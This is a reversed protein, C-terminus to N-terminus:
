LSMRSQLVWWFVVFCTSDWSIIGSFILFCSLIPIPLTYNMTPSHLPLPWCRRAAPKPAPRRGLRPSPRGHPPRDDGHRRAPRWGAVELQQLLGHQRELVRALAGAQRLDSPLQQPPERVPEVLRAVLQDGFREHAQRLTALDDGLLTVVVAEVGGLHGLTLGGFQAGFGGSGRISGASRRVRARGAGAGGGPGRGRVGAGGGIGGEGGVGGASRRRRRRGRGGAGSFRGGLICLARGLIRRGTHGAVALAGIQAALIQRAGSRRRRGGGGRAASGGFRVSYDEKWQSLVQLSNM